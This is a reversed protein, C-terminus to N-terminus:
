KYDRIRAKTRLHELLKQIKKDKMNSVYFTQGESLYSGVLLGVVAGLLWGILALPLVIQIRPVDELEVLLGWAVAGVVGLTSGIGVGARVKSKSVIKIVEIDKVTIIFNNNARDMLLIFNDKIRILHGTVIQGDLKTVELVVVPRERVKGMNLYACNISFLSLVLFLSIFKKGTPNM